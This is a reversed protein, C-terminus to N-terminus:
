NNDVKALTRLLITIFFIELPAIILRALVRAPFIAWFGKSYMIILWITNLTLSVVINVLIVSIAIKILSHKTKTNKRGIFIIGPILGTLGASITFGIFFGGQSRLMIGILDAGIGTIAGALPGFLIGALIIPVNGFSIRITPGIMFGFFRTLIISMSILLGMFILTRTQWKM